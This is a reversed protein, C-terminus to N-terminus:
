SKANKWDLIIKLWNLNQFTWLIVLIKTVSSQNKFVLTFRKIYSKDSIKYKKNNNWLKISTTTNKICTQFKWRSDSKLIINEKLKLLKDGKNM